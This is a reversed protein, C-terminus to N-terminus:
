ILIIGFHIIKDSNIIEIISIIIHISVSYSYNDVILNRFPDGLLVLTKVGYTLPKLIEIEPIQTAEDIICVSIEEM